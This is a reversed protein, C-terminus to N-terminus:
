KANKYCKKFVIKLEYIKCRVYKCKVINTFRSLWSIRKFM